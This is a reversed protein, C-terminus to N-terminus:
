EHHTGADAVARLRLLRVRLGARRGLGAIEPWRGAGDDLHELLQTTPRLEGAQADLRQVPADGDLLALRRHLRERRTGDVREVLQELFALVGEELPGSGPRIAAM